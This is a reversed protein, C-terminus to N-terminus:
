PTNSNKTKTPGREQQATAKQSKKARQKLRRASSVGAFGAEGDTRQYYDKVLVARQAAAAARTRGTLRAVHAANKLGSASHHMQMAAAFRTIIKERDLEECELTLREMRLTEGTTGTWGPKRRAKIRMEPFVRVVGEGQMVLVACHLWSEGTGKRCEVREGARLTYCKAERWVPKAHVLDGGLYRLVELIEVARARSYDIECEGSALTVMSAPDVPIEEGFTIRIREGRRFDEVGRMLEAKTVLKKLEARSCLRDVLDRVPTGTRAADELVGECLSEMQRPDLNM